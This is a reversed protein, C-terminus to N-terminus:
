TRRFILNDSLRAKTNDFKIQLDDNFVIDISEIEKKSCHGSRKQMQRLFHSEANRYHMEAPNSPDFNRMSKVNLKIGKQNMKTAVAALSMIHKKSLFNDDM